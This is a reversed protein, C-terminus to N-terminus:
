KNEKVSEGVATELDILAAHYEQLTNFYAINTNIFRDQEQIVTAVGVEGAEYAARILDLNERSQSLIGEEFLVVNKQVLVFKEFAAGVEQEIAAELATIEIKTQNQRSTSVAINGQNRNFFPVPISVKGGVTRSQQSAPIDAQEYFLSFGLDPFRERRALGKVFAARKEEEKRASLDPRLRKATDLLLAVQFTKPAFHLHEEIVVPTEWPRGMLLNLRSRAGSLDNEIIRRGNIVKNLEVKTLNVDLGPAEGAHSRAETTEVWKENLAIVEEAFRLKRELHLYINHLHKGEGILLRERNKIEMEVRTFNVEAAEERLKRKGSWEMKQSVGLRYLRDGTKGFPGGTTGEIELDPNFPYQKAEIIEGTAVPLNERIAKLELNNELTLSVIKSLTLRELAPTQARVRLSGSLLIFFIFLSQITSKM